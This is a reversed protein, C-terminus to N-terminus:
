KVMLKLFSVKNYINNIFKIMLGFFFKLLFFPEEIKCIIILNVNKNIFEVM